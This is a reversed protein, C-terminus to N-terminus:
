LALEIEDFSGASPEATSPHPASRALLVTKMGASRAAATEGASDSFFVIASSPMGLSGAISRYSHPELKPGTTTDFYGGILPTLDGATSHSFLLQQAEISGSSYIYIRIGADHWARLARVADEYVHGRLEGSEYGSRWIRGQLSKLPTDKRDEDIWRQLLGILEETSLNPQDAAARTASLLESLEGEHTRVYTALHRRAYPFLQRHVFELETTTGEIDTVVARIAGLRIM